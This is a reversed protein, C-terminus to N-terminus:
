MWMEDLMIVLGQYRENMRDLYHLPVLQHLGWEIMSSSWEWWHDWRETLITHFYWNIIVVNILSSPVTDMMQGCCMFSHHPLTVITICVCWISRHLHREVSRKTLSTSSSLHHLDCGISLSTWRMMWECWMISSHNSIPMILSWWDILTSMMVLIMSRDILQHPPFSSISM